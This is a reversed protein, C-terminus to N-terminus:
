DDKMVEDIPKGTVREIVYKASVNLRRIQMNNKTHRYLGVLTELMDDADDVLMRQKDGDFGKDQGSSIKWWWGTSM